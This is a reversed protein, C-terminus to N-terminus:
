LKLDVGSAKKDLMMKIVDAIYAGAEVPAIGGKHINSVVTMRAEPMGKHGKYVIYASLSEATVLGPREGVLECAVDAGTTESVDDITRVRGYKVFFPTGVKIGHVKLGQKIAPLIDKVNAEVAASSLGDVVFIQVQINKECKEDIAKIGEKNIIKGLDPRTIYEDKNKCLTKVTFLNMEKLFNESVDSFVADQAAAHDARFRLLTETKYRPGCRGIGIRAPTSKKMDLYGERDCSAKVLLQKKIDIKTIDPLEGEDACSAARITTEASSSIVEAVKGYENKIDMKIGKENVM